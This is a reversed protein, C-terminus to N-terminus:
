ESMYAIHLIQRIFKLTWIVHSVSPLSNIFPMEQLTSQPDVVVSAIRVIVNSSSKISSDLNSITVTVTAFWQLLHEWHFIVCRSAPDLPLLTFFKFLLTHQRRRKNLYEIMLVFRYFSCPRVNVFNNTGFILELVHLGLGRPVLNCKSVYVFSITM